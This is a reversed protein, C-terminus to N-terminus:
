CVVVFSNSLKELGENGFFTKVRSLLEDKIDTPCSRQIEPNRLVKRERKMIFETVIWTSLGLGFCTLAVMGKRNMTEM